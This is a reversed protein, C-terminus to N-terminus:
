AAAVALPIILAMTIGECLVAAAAHHEWRPPLHRTLSLERLYLSPASVIMGATWQWAAIGLLFGGWGGEQHRVGLLGFFAGYFVAYAVPVAAALPLGLFTRGYRVRLDKLTLVALLDRDM